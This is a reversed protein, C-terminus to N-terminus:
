INAHIGPFSVLGLTYQGNFSIRYSIRSSNLTLIQIVCYKKCIINKADSPYFLDIAKKKRVDILKFGLM